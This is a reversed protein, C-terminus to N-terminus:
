KEWITEGKKIKDTYFATIIFGEKNLISYISIQLSPYFAVGSTWSAPVIAFDAM